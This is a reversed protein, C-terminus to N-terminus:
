QFNENLRYFVKKGKWVPSRYADKMRPTFLLSQAFLFPRVGSAKQIFCWFFESLFCIKNQKSFGFAKRQHVTLYAVTTKFSPKLSFCLNKKTNIKWRLVYSITWCAKMIEVVFILKTIILILSFWIFAMSTPFSSSWLFSPLLM